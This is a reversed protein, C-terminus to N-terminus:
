QRRSGGTAAKQEDKPQDHGGGINSIGGYESM